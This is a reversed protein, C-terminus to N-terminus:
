IPQDIARFFCSFAAAGRGTLRNRSDRRGTVPHGMGNVIVQGFQSALSLAVSASTPLVM